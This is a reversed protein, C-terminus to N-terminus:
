EQSALVAIHNLSEIEALRKRQFFQGGFEVRVLQLTEIQRDWERLILTFDHSRELYKVVISSLAASMNQLFKRVIQIRLSVAPDVKALFGFQGHSIHKTYDRGSPILQRRFDGGEPQLQPERFEAEGCKHPLEESEGKPLVVDVQV